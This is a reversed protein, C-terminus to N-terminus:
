PFRAEIDIIHGGKNDSRRKKERRGERKDVRKGGPSARVKYDSNKKGEKKGMKM